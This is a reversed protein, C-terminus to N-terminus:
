QNVKDLAYSRYKLTNNYTPVILLELELFVIGRRRTKSNNGKADGMGGGGGGGM